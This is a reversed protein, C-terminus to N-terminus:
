AKVSCPAIMAALTSLLARATSDGAADFEVREILSIRIRAPKHGPRSLLEPPVLRFAAGVDLQLRPVLASEEPYFGSPMGSREIEILDFHIRSDKAPCFAQRRGGARLRRGSEAEGHPISRAFM